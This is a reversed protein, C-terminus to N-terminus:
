KVEKNAFKDDHFKNIRSYMEEKIDNIENIKNNFQEEDLTEFVERYRKSLANSLHTFEMDKMPTLEGTSSRYYKIKDEM